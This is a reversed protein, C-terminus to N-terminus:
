RDKSDQEQQRWRVALEALAAWRADDEGEGCRCAGHNLNYGCHPCLGACDPRCLPRLPQALVGYQQVAAALGLIHHADIRLTEPDEPPPLPVGTLVDTTPLYEEEIHLVQPCVVWELCRVCRERYSVALDATVLIGRNTRMLVASGNVDSHGISEHILFNRERVEVVRVSGVPERLQQAVNFYM